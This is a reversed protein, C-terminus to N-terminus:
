IGILEEYISFTRVANKRADFLERARRYGAVGMAQARAPDSLIAIIAEALKRPDNPPILLGTEDHRVLERPGGLDSAVVPKAMAGAEIVPRAFHPVVSPFV